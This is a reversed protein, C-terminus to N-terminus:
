KLRAVIGEEGLSRGVLVTSGSKAESVSDMLRKISQDGADVWYLSAPNAVSRVLVVYEVDFEAASRALSTGFMPLSRGELGIAPNRGVFAYWERFPIMVRAGAPIANHLATVIESRSALASRWGDVIATGNFVVTLTAVAFIALRSARVSGARASAAAYGGLGILVTPTVAYGLWKNPVLSLAIVWVIGPGLLWWGNARRRYTEVTAIGTAAVWLGLWWVRDRMNPNLEFPRRAFRVVLRLPWLSESTSVAPVLLRTAESWPDWDVPYDQRDLMYRGPLENIV